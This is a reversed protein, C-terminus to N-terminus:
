LITTVTSYSGMIVVLAQILGWLMPVWTSMRYAGANYIAAIALGVLSGSLFAIFAGTVFFFVPLLIAWKYRRRSFVIFAWLGAMTYISVIFILTWYTTFPWYLSPWLPTKYDPPPLFGSSM